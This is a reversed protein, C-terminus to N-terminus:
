SNAHETNKPPSFDNVIPGVVYDDVTWGKDRFFCKARLVAAPYTTSRIHTIHGHDPTAGPWTEGEIQYTLRFTYVM